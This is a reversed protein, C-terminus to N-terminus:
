IGTTPPTVPFAAYFRGFSPLSSYDPRSPWVMARAPHFAEPPTGPQAVVVPVVRVDQKRKSAKKDPSFERRRKESSSTRKEPSQSHERHSSKHHDHNRVDQLPRSRSSSRRRERHESGHRSGHRSSRNEAHHSSSPLQEGPSPVLVWWDDDQHRPPPSKLVLKSNAGSPTPPSELTYPAQADAWHVRKDVATVSARRRPRGSVPSASASSSTYMMSSARPRRPRATTTKIQPVHPASVSQRPAHTAPFPVPAAAPRAPAPMSERKPRRSSSSSSSHSSVASSSTTSRSSKSSKSSSSQEMVPVSGTPPAPASALAVESLASDLVNMARHVQEENARRDTLVDLADIISAFNSPLRANPAVIYQFLSELKYLLQARAGSPPSPPTSSTLPTSHASRARDLRKLLDSLPSTPNPSPVHPM